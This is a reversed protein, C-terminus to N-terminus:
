SREHLRDRKIYAIEKLILEKCIHPLLNQIVMGVKVKEDVGELKALNKYLGSLYDDVKQGRAQKSSLIECISDSQSIEEPFKAKLKNEFISFKPEPPDGTSFGDLGLEDAWEKASSKMTALGQGVMQRDKWGNALQLVKLRKILETASENGRGSFELNSKLAAM